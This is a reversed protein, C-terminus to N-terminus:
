KTNFEHLQDIALSSRRPVKLFILPSALPLQLQVDHDHVICPAQATPPLFTEKNSDRGLTRMKMGAINKVGHVKLAPVEDSSIGGRHQQPLLQVLKKAAMFSSTKTFHSRRRM